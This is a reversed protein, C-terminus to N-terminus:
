RKYPLFGKINEKSAVKIIRFGSRESHNFKFIPMEDPKVISSFEICNSDTISNDDQNSNSEPCLLTKNEVDSTHPPLLHFFLSPNSKNKGDTFSEDDHEAVIISSLAKPSDEIVVIMGFLKLSTVPPESSSALDLEMDFTHMPLTNDEIDVSTTVSQGDNEKENLITEAHSTSSNVKDAASVSSLGFENSEVASITSIPSLNDEEQNCVTFLPWEPKEIIQIKPLKGLKRPYPKTPRKKPRPPPITVSKVEDTERVVKTFFKQAHSRIQIASKSGIHEKIQRWARGYLKLAELFKNQEEGTWRERQKTITYPKRVKIAEETLSFDMKDKSDIWIESSSSIELYLPDSTM